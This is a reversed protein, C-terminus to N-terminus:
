TGLYWTSRPIALSVKCNHLKIDKYKILAALGCLAASVWYVLNPTVSPWLQYSLILFPSLTFIQDRKLVRVHISIYGRLLYIGKYKHTRNRCCSDRTRTHKAIHEQTSLNTSQKAQCPLLSPTKPLILCHSEPPVETDVKRDRGGGSPFHRSAAMEGQGGM